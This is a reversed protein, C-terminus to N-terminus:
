STCIMPFLAETSVPPWKGSALSYRNFSQPDTTDYSGDYPDPQDFRSWWRNHRRNAADDSQNVATQMAEPLPLFDRQKTVDLLGRSM